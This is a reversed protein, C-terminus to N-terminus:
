DFNYKNLSCRFTITSFYFSYIYIIFFYYYSTQLTKRVKDFFCARFHGYKVLLLFSLCYFCGTCSTYVFCRRFREWHSIVILTMVMLCILLHIYLSRKYNLLIQFHFISALLWVWWALWMWDKKYIFSCKIIVNIEDM